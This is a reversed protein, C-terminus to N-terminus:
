NLVVGSTNLWHVQFQSVSGYGSGGILATSMFGSNGVDFAGWSIPNACYIQAVTLTGFAPSLPCPYESALSGTYRATGTAVFTLPVSSGNTVDTATVYFDAADGIGFTIAYSRGNQLDNTLRPLCFTNVGVVEFYLQGGTETSPACGTQGSLWNANSIVIGIGDIPQFGSFDAKSAHSAFRVFSPWHNFSNNANNNFLGGKSGSATFTFSVQEWYAGGPRTKWESGFTNEYIDMTDSLPAANSVNTIFVTSPAPHGNYNLTYNQSTTIQTAIDMPFVYGVIGDDTWGANLLSQRASTSITYRRDIEHNPINAGINLRYLATLGPATTPLQYVYGEARDYRYGLTTLASAESATTVYAHDNQPSGKYYRYLLVAGSIPNCPFDMDARGYGHYLDNTANYAHPTEGNPGNLPNKACPLYAAAGQFTEGGNPPIIALIDDMYTTYVTDNAQGVVLSTEMLPFIGDAHATLMCVANAAIFLGAIIELKSKM